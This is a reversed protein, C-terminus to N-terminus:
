IRKLFRRISLLSGLWGILAGVGVLLGILASPGLIPPLSHALPTEFKQAYISVQHAIFFVLGGAVAAGCVGYFIGELVLPFRIFASTAGVLQMIRIERRRAFVSLRITNQIVFETAIFLLVVFVGGVHTILRTTALVKDLVDRADRISHIEPFRLPDRLIAVIERTRHPDQLRVDLRDPLPNEEGLADAIGTGTKEDEAQLQALAQEKPYLGVYAVGPLARIRAQLELAKERPLDKQVFIAIEFEAQQAQAFQQLRFLGYLAGGLVTMSVMVTSFTALSMLGNRRINRGAEEV